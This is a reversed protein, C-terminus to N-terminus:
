WDYYLDPTSLILTDAAALKATHIFRWYRYHKPTTMEIKILGAATSTDLVSSTAWSTNDNSVQLTTSLWTSDNVETILFTYTVCTPFKLYNENVGLVLSFADTTDSGTTVLTTTAALGSFTLDKHYVGAFALAVILLSALAVTLINLKISKM